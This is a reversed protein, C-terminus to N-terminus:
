DHRLASIPDVKTARRAPFYCAAAAVAALGLAVGAYTFPDTTKIGYLESELYRSLLAAGVIGILLGIVALKMGDTVVMKLVDAPEAGLAMRIGIEHFRQTVGYAMVGYIGIAALITAIAAFVALLLMNLRRQSVAQTLIQDMTHIETIPQSPDISTVAHRVAPTIASPDGTTRVVLRMIRSPNQAYPLYVQGVKEEGWEWERVDAVVGIVTLMSDRAVPQWPTKTPPFKLRIQQGIPNQDQWYRHALAENLIVVGQADPGDSTSFDRGSKVNIGMTHLYRWDAVRYQATNPKDAPAIPRGAIDFNCFDGWGSLPLFNVASASKVGPLAGIRDIAQQYFNMVPPGPPYHSEPLWIQATLVNDPDIGLDESMM